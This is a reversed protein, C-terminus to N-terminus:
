REVISLLYSAHRAGIGVTSHYLIRCNVVSVNSCEGWFKVNQTFWIKLVVVVHTNTKIIM